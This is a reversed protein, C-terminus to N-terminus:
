PHVQPLTLFRCLAAREPAAPDPTVKIFIVVSSAKTFTNCICPMSLAKPIMPDAMIGIEDAIAILDPHANAMAVGHGAWHLMWWARAASFLGVTDYAIIRKGDGIGMRRM